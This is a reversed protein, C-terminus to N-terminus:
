KLDEFFSKRLPTGADVNKNFKKGLIEDLYKPHLGHGPRISRVNNHNIIDDKKVDKTVFLSRRFESLKKMKDSNIFNGIKMTEETKRIDKVLRDFQNETLSFDSDATKESENLKFHKEIICAGMAISAISPINSLSHDSLGVLCGYKEKFINITNLEIENLESPYSSTCKLLVIEENGLEKCAQIALDIDEFDALGTSIIIPKKKAAVYKILPIDTIEPSAIKYCPVNLEELFDVSTFDFPSSFFILGQKEAREKIKMHWEWPTQAKEFLSYLTEGDWLTNHKIQFYEKDSQMTITEPKYTQLKIADAGFEKAKDVMKLAINIDNNHNASVEAVIFVPQDSGIKRNSIHM